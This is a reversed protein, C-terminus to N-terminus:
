AGQRAKSQQKLARLDFCNAHREPHEALDGLDSKRIKQTATVPMESLFAIYGPAKYYAFRRRCHEFIAKALAADPTQDPRPVIVAMVEEERIEDRVALVSVEGVAPHDSLVQEVEAAAINEGSRRVIAKKRDMFYLYGAEDQRVIDGTNLWGGQWAAATAAEDKLYGSFFRKKPNPGKARVLFNGAMGRPVDNGADDVIRIEMPPGPRDPRGMCHQGLRRPEEWDGLTAAGGTETMAWGETLTLGFRQEFAAHHSSHLGGGMGYRITHARDLPSPPLNLLMAPM